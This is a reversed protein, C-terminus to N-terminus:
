EEDKAQLQLFNNSLKKWPWVPVMHRKLEDLPYFTGRWDIGGQFLTALSARWFMYLKIYPTLLFWRLSSLPMCFIRATILMFLFTLMVICGCILQVPGDAFLLGWFPLINSSIILLTALILLDLRYDIVALVNKRLGRTMESVSNYWPVTIFQSGNLCEQRGGSEKVLRGLLIDDVPCLRILRHGGFRQYISTRVLNFGGVGLFYRSD